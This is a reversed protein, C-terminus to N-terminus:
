RMLWELGQATQASGLIDAMGLIELIADMNKSITGLANIVFPVITLAILGHM